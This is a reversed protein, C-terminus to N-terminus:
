HSHSTKTSSTKLTTLEFNDLSYRNSTELKQLADQRTQFLGEGIITDEKEITLQREGDVIQATGDLILM